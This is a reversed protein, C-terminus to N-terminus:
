SSERREVRVRTSWAGAEFTAEIWGDPELDLPATLGGTLILDGERLSRPLDSHQALWDISGAIDPCVDLVQATRMHGASSRLSVVLDELPADLRSGLVAYAASSGDATNHAWTFEYDKWVSDVVEISALYEVVAGNGDIRVAIEPEVKPQILERVLAPSALVTSDFLAGHNPQDIGMAARMVDSTYGLKFGAIDAEPHLHRRVGAQIEYATDPHVPTEGATLMRGSRRAEVITAVM